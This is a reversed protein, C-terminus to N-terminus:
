ALPLVRRAITFGPALPANADYRCSHEEFYATGLPLWGLLFGAGGCVSTGGDGGRTTGQESVLECKYPNKAIEIGFANPRVHLDWDRAFGQEPRELEGAALVWDRRWAAEAPSLDTPYRDCPVHDGWRFLTSAGAGCAFEWEDSTPLRFGAAALRAVLGDHTTGAAREVVLRGREDRQVRVEDDGSCITLVRSTGGEFEAVADAVSPDDAVVKSWGVEEARTEILFPPLVVSRPRRTAAALHEKLSADIGFEEASGNWSALEDANPEFRDPDFGLMAAGGPVLVFTREGATFEAVPHTITGLSFTRVGVFAFGSPLEMVLKKGLARREADSLHLWRELTLDKVSSM